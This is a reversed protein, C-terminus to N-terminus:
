TKYPLTNSQTGKPLDVAPALKMRGTKLEELQSFDSLNNKAEIQFLSSKKQLSIANLSSIFFASTQGTAWISFNTMWKGLLSCNDFLMQGHPFQKQIESFFIRFEMESIYNLVGALVFLTPRKDDLATRWAQDFISGELNVVEANDLGLNKRLEIM